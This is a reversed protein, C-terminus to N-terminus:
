ERPTVEAYSAGRRFWRLLLTMPVPLHDRYLGVKFYVRDLDDPFGLPGRYTGAPRFDDALRLRDDAVSRGTGVLATAIVLATLTAVLRGAGSRRLARV